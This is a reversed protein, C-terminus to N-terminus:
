TRPRRRLGQYQGVKRSRKEARMALRVSEEFELYDGIAADPDFSPGMERILPVLWQVLPVLVAKPVYIPHGHKILRIYGQCADVQIGHRRFRPYRGHHRMHRAIRSM